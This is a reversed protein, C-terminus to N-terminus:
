ILNKLKGLINEMRDIVGHCQTSLAEPCRDAFLSLLRRAETNVLIQENIDSINVNVTTKKPSHLALNDM